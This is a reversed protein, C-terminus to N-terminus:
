NSAKIRIDGASQPIIRPKASDGCRPPEYGFDQRGTAGARGVRYISFAIWRGKDDCYPPGSGNPAGLGVAAHIVGRTPSKRTLLFGYVQVHAGARTPDDRFIIWGTEGERAQDFSHRNLSSVRHESDSDGFEAMYLELDVPQEWVISTRELTSMLATSPPSQRLPPAGEVSLELEDPGAFLHFDATLGAATEQLPRVFRWSAYVIQLTPPIGCSKDLTITVGGVDDAELAKLPFKECAIPAPSKPSGAAISNDSSATPEPRIPEPSPTNISATASPTAIPEPRPTFTPVGPAISKAPNRSGLAYPSQSAVPTVPGSSPLAGLKWLGAAALVALAILAGAAVFYRALAPRPAELRAGSSRARRIGFRDLAELIRELESFKVFHRIGGGIPLIEPGYGDVVVSVLKDAGLAKEAEERVWHSNASAASWIVIVAKVSALREDIRAGFNEGSLLREDWWVDIGSARLAEALRKARARDSQHGYSIFVDPARKPKTRPVGIHDLAGIIKDRADLPASHQQRLGTPIISHDFGEIITSILRGGNDRARLALDVVKTDAAANPSWLVVLAKALRLQAKLRDDVTEGPVMEDEWWVDFGEARLDEVLKQAHARDVKAYSVFVDSM